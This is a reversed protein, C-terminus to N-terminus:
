AKAPCAEAQNPAVDDRVNKPQTEQKASVKLIDTNMAAASAGQKPVSTPLIAQVSKFLHVVASQIDKTSGNSMALRAPCDVQPLQSSM